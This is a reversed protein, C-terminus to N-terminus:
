PPYTSKGHNFVKKKSPAMIISITVCHKRLGSGMAFGRRRSPLKPPPHCPQLPPSEPNSLDILGFFFCVRFFGLTSSFSRVWSPSGKFTVLWVILLKKFFPNKITFNLGPIGFLLDCPAPGHPGWWLNCFVTWNGSIKLHSKVAGPRRDNQSKQREKQAKMEKWKPRKPRRKRENQGKPGENGKMEKWKTRKSTSKRENQGKPGENGKMKDKQANIKNMKAKQAKM